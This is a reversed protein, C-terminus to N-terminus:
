GPRPVAKINNLLVCKSYEFFYCKSDKYILLPSREFYHHLVKDAMKEAKFQKWQSNSITMVGHNKTSYLQSEVRDFDYM